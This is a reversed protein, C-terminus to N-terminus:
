KHTGFASALPSTEDFNRVSANASVLAIASGRTSSSTTGALGKGYLCFLRNFSANPAGTLAGTASLLSATDTSM